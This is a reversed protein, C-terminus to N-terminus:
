LNWLALVGLADEDRKESHGWLLTCPHSSILSVCWGKPPGVSRPMPKSCSGLATHTKFKSYGRYGREHSVARVGGGSWRLAM